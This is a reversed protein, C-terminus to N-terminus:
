GLQITEADLIGAATPLGVATVSDGVAFSPSANCNVPLRVVAWREDASARGPNLTRADPLRLQQVLLLNGEAHAITSTVQSIDPQTAMDPNVGTPYTGLPDLVPIAPTGTGGPVDPLLVNGCAGIPGAPGAKGQVMRYTADPGPSDTKAQAVAPWFAMAAILLSSAIGIGIRM